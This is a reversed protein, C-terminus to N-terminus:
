NNGLPPAVSMTRTVRRAATSVAIANSVLQQALALPCQRLMKYNERRDVANKTKRNAAQELKSGKSERKERGGKTGKGVSYAM